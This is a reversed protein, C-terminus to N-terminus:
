WFDDLYASALNNHSVFSDAILITTTFHNQSYIIFRSERVKSKETGWFKDDARDTNLTYRGRKM